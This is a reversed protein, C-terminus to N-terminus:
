PRIMPDAAAAAEMAGEEPLGDTPLPHKVTLIGSLHDGAAVAAVQAALLVV